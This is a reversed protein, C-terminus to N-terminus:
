SFARHQCNGVNEKTLGEEEKKARSSVEANGTFLEYESGDSLGRIFLTYLEESEHVPVSVTVRHQSPRLEAQVVTEGQVEARGERLEYSIRGATVRIQPGIGRSQFFQYYHCADRDLEAM